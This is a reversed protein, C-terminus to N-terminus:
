FYVDGQTGIFVVGRSEAKLQKNINHWQYWLCGRNEHAKNKIFQNNHWNHQWYLKKEGEDGILWAIM